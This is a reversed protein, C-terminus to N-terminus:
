RTGGRPRSEPLSSREGFPRSAVAEIVRGVIEILEDVDIPHGDHPAALWAEFDDLQEPVIAARLLEYVSALTFMADSTTQARALKLLVIAPITDAVEFTRGRVEVSRPMTPM